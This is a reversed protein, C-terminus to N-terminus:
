KETQPVALCNDILSQQMLIFQSREMLDSKKVLEPSSSNNISSIDKLLNDADKFLFDDDIDDLISDNSSKDSGNNQEKPTVSSLDTQKSNYKLNTEDFSNMNKEVDVETSQYRPSSSFNNFDKSFYNINNNTKKYPTNIDINHNNQHYNHKNSDQSPGKSSYETMNNVILKNSSASIITQKMHPDNPPVPKNEMKKMVNSSMSDPTLPIYPSIMPFPPQPMPFLNRQMISMPPNGPNPPPGPGMYPPLMYQNNMQNWQMMHNYQQHHHQQQQQQQQYHLQFYQQQNKPQQNNLTLQNRKSPKLIKSQHSIELNTKVPWTAFGNNSMQQSISKNRNYGFKMYQPTTPHSPCNPYPQQQQQPSPQQSPIPSLKSPHLFPQKMFSQNQIRSITKTSKNKENVKTPKEIETTKNELNKKSLEKKKQMKQHENYNALTGTISAVERILDASQKNRNILLKSNELNSSQSCDSDKILIDKKSRKLSTADDRSLNGALKPNVPFFSFQFRNLEPHVIYYMKLENMKHLLIKKTIWYQTIPVIGVSAEEYLQSSPTSICFFDNTTRVIKMTMNDFANDKRIFSLLLQLKIILDHDSISPYNAEFFWEKEQAIQRAFPRTLWNYHLLSNLLRNQLVTLRYNFIVDTKKYVTNEISSIKKGQLNRLSDQQLCDLLLIDLLATDDETLIMSINMKIYKINCKMTTPRIRKIDVNEKLLDYTKKENGEEDVNIFQRVAIWEQKMYRDGIFYQSIVTESKRIENVEASTWKYHRRHRLRFITTQDYMKVIGFKGMIFNCQEEIMKKNSSDEQFPMSGTLMIFAIVGSAWIDVKRPDYSHGKLIEPAAYAKSGCFTRSLSVPAMDDFYTECNHGSFYADKIRLFLIINKEESDDMYAIERRRKELASTNRSGYIEKRLFDKCDKPINFANSAKELYLQTAFGFDTLKLNQKDDFLINECKLDRHAINNSHIYDLAELLQKMWRRVLYFQISSNQQIYTLADGGSAFEIISYVNASGMFSDYFQVINEHKLQPWLLLERPLFKRCFDKPALKLNIVKVACVQNNYPLLFTLREKLKQIIECKVSNTKIQGKEEEMDIDLLQTVHDTNHKLYTEACKAKIKLTDCARYVRSYSGQGLAERLKLCRSNTEINYGILTDDDFNLDRDSISSQLENNEDNKIESNENNNIKMKDTKKISTIRLSSDKLHSLNPRFIARVIRGITQVNDENDYISLAERLRQQLYQEDPVVAIHGSDRDIIMLPRANVTSPENM